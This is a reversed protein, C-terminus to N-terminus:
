EYPFLKIKGSPGVLAIVKNKPINFSISKLIEVEQKTPYCFKLEKVEIEGRVETGEPPVIGGEAKIKPDYELLEV